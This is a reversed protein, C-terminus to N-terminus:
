RFDLVEYVRRLKHWFLRDSGFCLVVKHNAKIFTRHTKKFCSTQIFKCREFGSNNWSEWSSYTTLFFFVFWKKIPKVIRNNNETPKATIIHYLYLYVYINTDMCAEVLFLFSPISPFPFHPSYFESFTTLIGLSTCVGTYDRRRSYPCSGHIHFSIMKM